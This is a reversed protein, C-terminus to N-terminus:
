KIMNLVKSMNKCALDAGYRRCLIRFALESGGVMPAVIRKHSPLVVRAAKKPKSSRDVPSEATRKKTKSNEAKASGASVSWKLHLLRTTVIHGDDFKIFYKYFSGHKLKKNQKVGQVIGSYPQLSGDELPWEVDVRDGVALVARHDGRGAM